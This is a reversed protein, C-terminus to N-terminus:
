TGKKNSPCIEHNPDLWIVNLINGDKFGWLRCKSTFRISWLPDYEEFRLDILRQQAFGALQEADIPHDRDQSNMIDSWTRRETDKFKTAIGCFSEDVNGSPFEIDPDFLTFSWYINNPDVVDRFQAQKANPSALNAAEPAKATKKSKRKSNRRKGM